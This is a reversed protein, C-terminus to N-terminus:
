QGFKGNVPYRFSVPLLFRSVPFSFFLHFSHDSKCQAQQHGAGQHDAAAAASGSGGGSGGGIIGRSGLSGSGGSFLDCEANGMRVGLKVLDAHLQVIGGLGDVLAGVAIDGHVQEGVVGEAVHSVANLGNHTVGGQHQHGSEALPFVHVKIGASELAAENELGTLLEQLHHVGLQELLDDGLHVLDIDVGDVAAENATHAVDDTLFGVNLGSVDLAQLEANGSGGRVQLAKLGDASGGHAHGSGLLQVGQGGAGDVSQVLGDAQHVAGLAILHDVLDGQQGLLRQSVSQEAAGGPPVANGFLVAHDDLFLQVIGAQAVVLVGNLVLATHAFLHFGGTNLEM